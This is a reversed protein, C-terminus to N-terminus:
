DAQGAQYLADELLSVDFQTLMCRCMPHKHLYTRIKLATNLTPKNLYTKLLKTM